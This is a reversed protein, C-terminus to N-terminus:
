RQRGMLSLGVGGLIIIASVILRTSMEESLFVVGAVAAIVPVSLQVTAARTASLGRLAAYWVVYGGASAVAGSASALMAGQASIQLDDLMVLSTALVLPVSYLFSKTTARVPEKVGRGLLSYAGWAIGALVMLASGSPSPASFGPSVLYGLGLLAIVLGIWELPHPREGSFLATLIMTAQVSGFLLLAGTGASLSNYAFSFPIAYLFLCVAPFWSSRRETVRSRSRFVVILLLALAGSVLRITSFSAADITKEALALRCLISNMAFAFLALTTLVITSARTTALSSNGGPENSEVAM